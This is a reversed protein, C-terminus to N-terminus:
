QVLTQLVMPLSRQGCVRCGGQCRMQRCCWPIHILVVIARCSCHSRLHLGSGPLLSLQLSSSQEASTTCHCHSRHLCHRCFGHWQLTHLLTTAAGVAVLWYPSVIMSSIAVLVKVAVLRLRHCQGHSSPSATTLACHHCHYPSPSPLTPM